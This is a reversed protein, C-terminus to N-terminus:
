EEMIWLLVFACMCESKGGPCPRPCLLLVWKGDNLVPLCDLPNM